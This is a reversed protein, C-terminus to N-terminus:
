SVYKQREGRGKRRGVVRQDRHVYRATVNDILDRAGAPTCINLAYSAGKTQDAMWAFNADVGRGLFFTDVLVGADALRKIEAEFGTIQV